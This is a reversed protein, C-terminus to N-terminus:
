SNKLKIPPPLRLVLLFGGVLRLDSVFTIVHHQISCMEGSMLAIIACTTTYGVVMRTRGRGEKCYNQM